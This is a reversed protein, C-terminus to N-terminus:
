APAKPDKKAKSADEKEKELLKIKEQLEINSVRLDNNETSLKQLQLFDQIALQAIDEAINSM